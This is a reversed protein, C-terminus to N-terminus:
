LAKPYLNFKLSRDYLYLDVDIPTHEWISLRFHKEIIYKYKQPKGDTKLGWRGFYKHRTIDQGRPKDM